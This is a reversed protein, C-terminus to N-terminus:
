VPEPIIRAIPLATPFGAEPPCCSGSMGSKIFDIGIIPEIADNNYQGSIYNTNNNLSMQQMYNNVEQMRIYDKHKLTELHSYIRNISYSVGCSCVVTKNKDVFKLHKTTKFHDSRHSENYVSGCECIIDAKSDRWEKYHKSRHEKTKDRYQKDTLLQGSIENYKNGSICSNLPSNYFKIHLGERIRLEVDTVYKLEEYVYSSFNEWGFQNVYQYFKNNSRKSDSIHGKIRDRLTQFTSGIYFMSQNTNHYICYIIGNRRENDPAVCPIIFHQNNINM